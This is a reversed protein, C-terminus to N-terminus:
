TKPNYYLRVVARSWPGESSESKLLGGEKKLLRATCWILLESRPPANYRKFFSEYTETSGFQVMIQKWQKTSNIKKISWFKDRREVKKDLGPEVKHGTTRVIIDHVENAPISVVEGGPKRLQVMVGVRIPSEAPGSLRRVLFTVPTTNTVLDHYSAFHIGGAKDVKAAGVGEAVVELKGTDQAAKASTAPSEKGDASKEKADAGKEEGDAGPKAEEGAKEATSKSDTGAASGPTLAGAIFNDEVKGQFDASYDRWRILSSITDNLAKRADDSVRNSIQDWSIGLGKVVIREERLSKMKHNIHAAYRRTSPDGFVHVPKSYRECFSKWAKDINNINEFIVKFQLGLREATKADMSSINPDAVIQQAAQVSSHFSLPLKHVVDLMHNIGKLYEAALEPHKLARGRVDLVAETSKTFEKAMGDILRTQNVFEDVAGSSHKDKSRLLLKWQMEEVLKKHAEIVDGLIKGQEPAAKGVKKYTNVLSDFGSKTRVKLDVVSHVQEIKKMVEVRM